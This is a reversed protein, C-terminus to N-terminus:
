ILGVMKEIELKMRELSVVTKLLEENSLTIQPPFGGMKNKNRERESDIAEQVGPLKIVSQLQTIKISENLIHKRVVKLSKVDPIFGKGLFRYFRFIRLSDEELRKNPNGVFKLKNSKIDEIGEGNPDILVNFRLNFYLANITFDRRQADEYITGIHVEEPRRGDIYTGDKRFNAIEFTVGEKIINLVLFEKGTNKTTFGNDKFIKELKEYSLSSVFDIDKPKSETLISRIAGGVICSDRDNEKLINIVEKELENFDIIYELIKRNYNQIIFFLKRSLKHKLPTNNYYSMVYDPNYLDMKKFSYLDISIQQLQKCFSHLKGLSKKEIHTCCRINNELIKISYNSTIETLKTNKFHTFYIENYKKIIQKEIFKM